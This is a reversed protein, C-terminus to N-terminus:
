RDTYVNGARREDFDIPILEFQFGPGDNGDEDTGPPDGTLEFEFDIPEQNM